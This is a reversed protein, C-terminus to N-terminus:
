TKPINFASYFCWAALLAFVIGLFILTGNMFIFFAIVSLCCATVILAKQEGFSM